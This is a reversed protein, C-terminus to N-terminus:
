WSAVKFDADAIADVHLCVVQRHKGEVRLPEPPAITKLEMTLTVSGSVPQEISCAQGLLGALSLILVSAILRCGGTWRSPNGLGPKGAAGM